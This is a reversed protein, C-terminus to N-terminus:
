VDCEHLVPAVVDAMETVVPPCYTSVAREPHSISTSVNLRVIVGTSVVRMVVSVLTHLEILEIM